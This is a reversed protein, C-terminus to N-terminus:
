LLALGVCEELEAQEWLLEVRGLLVVGAVVTLEEGVDGLAGGGGGGSLAQRRGRRCGCRHTPAHGPETSDQSPPQPPAPTSPPDACLAATVTKHNGDVIMLGGVRPEFRGATRVLGLAFLGAPEFASREFRERVQEKTNGLCVVSQLATAIKSPDRGAARAYAEVKARGSRIKGPGVERAVVRRV